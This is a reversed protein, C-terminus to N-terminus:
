RMMLVLCDILKRDGSHSQRIAIVIKTSKLKRGQISKKGNLGALALAFSAGQELLDVALTIKAVIFAFSNWLYEKLAGITADFKVATVAM